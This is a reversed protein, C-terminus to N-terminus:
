LPTAYIKEFYKVVQDPALHEKAGTKRDIVEITDSKAGVVIVHPIGLFESEKIRQGISDQYSNHMMLEGQLAPTSNLLAYIEETKEMVQKAGIVMARFPAISKPWIIGNKDNSTEVAVALIRSVGIGYCGMEIPTRGAESTIVAKLPVSYKTGLYFLHGIEIGKRMELTHDGNCGEKKGPCLCKDGVRAVKVHNFDVKVNNKSFIDEVVKIFKKADPTMSESAFASDIVVRKTEASLFSQLSNEDLPKTTFEAGLKYHGKVLYENIEYSSDTLALSCVDPQKPDLFIAARMFSLGNPQALHKMLSSFLDQHSSTTDFSPLKSNEFSGVTASKAKEVNAHYLNSQCYLLSDEGVDTLAHFEHSLNGGINGSDAEAVAYPLELRTMIRHYAARVEEYTAMAQEQTADFSYMDKMVFERGRILGFRPRAEDRYKDGIQYLRLPLQKKSSVGAAVISTIVEEHTPALCFDEGKRDKLRILESGMDDWRGTKEWLEKPLMKPMTM